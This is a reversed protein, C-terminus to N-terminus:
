VVIFQTETQTAVTLMLKGVTQVDTVFSVATDTINQQAGTTQRLVAGVLQVLQVGVQVEGAAKQVFVDQTEQIVKGAFEARKRVDETVYDATVVARVQTVV